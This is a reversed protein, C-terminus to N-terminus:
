LHCKKIFSVKISFFLGFSLAFLEAIKFLKMSVLNFHIVKQANELKQNKFLKNIIVGFQFFINYPCKKIKFKSFQIIPHDKPEM